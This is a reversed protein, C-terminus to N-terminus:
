QKEVETRKEEIVGGEGGKLSWSFQQATIFKGSASM